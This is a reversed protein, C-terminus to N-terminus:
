IDSLNDNNDLTKRTQKQALYFISPSLHLWSVTIQLIRELLVLLNLSFLKKFINLRLYSAGIDKKITFGESEMLRKIYKPHFNLFTTAEGKTGENYGQNPQQYPEQNFFSFNLRLLARIRAKAHLKNAFEQIYSSNSSLVRYIESFYAAPKEIHHLVRVMLGGDFSNDKFPLKYANAAILITNPYNKLIMSQYKVLTELSYDIIVSHKYKNYYRPLNRGFSGGVDIFWNGSKGKLLTEIVSEEAKDEYDRENWYNKYDYKYTDYDVLKM